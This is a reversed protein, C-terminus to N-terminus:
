KVYRVATFSGIKKLPSSPTDGDVYVEGRIAPQASGNLFAEYDSIGVTGSYYVKYSNNNENATISFNLYLSTGSWNLRTQYTGALPSTFVGPVAIQGELPG